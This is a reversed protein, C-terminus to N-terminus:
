LPIKNNYEERLKLNREKKLNEYYFLCYLWAQGDKIFLRLNPCIGSSLEDDTIIDLVKNLEKNSLPSLIGDIGPEFLKYHGDLVIDYLDFRNKRRKKPVYIVTDNICAKPISTRSYLLIAKRSNNDKIAPTVIINGRRLSKKHTIVGLYIIVKKNKIRFEKLIDKFAYFGTSRIEQNM